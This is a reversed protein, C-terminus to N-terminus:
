VVGVVFPATLSAVASLPPDVHRASSSAANLCEQVVSLIEPLAGMDLKMEGHSLGDPSELESAVAEALADSSLLDPHIARLLGLRHMREARIWQEEVPRVRPVVVSRKGLSLIECITNYGGMSVVLDAAVMHSMLDDTFSQVNVNPSLEVFTRLQAIKESPMEPGHVLLSHLGAIRSSLQPLAAVYCQMLRDSDEGGGATVLVLTENPRVNLRERLEQRAYQKRQRGVYGCLRTKAAVSEPLRYEAAFDFIEACGLVLVRNYLKQIIDCYGHTEWNAITAHPSDLIDRLVLMYQVGPRTQKMYTLAPELENKVGFPKKDVLVLHPDFTEMASLILGSRMRMTLELETGLYKTCYTDRDTRSLCPLKIYDLRAPIRFNQIIPSGTILLISLEPSANLLYECIALMRRINGLGFTDHSYVVVRHM